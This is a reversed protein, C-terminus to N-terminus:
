ALLSVDTKRGNGEAIAHLERARYSLRDEDVQDQKPIQPWRQMVSFNKSDVDMGGLARPVRVIQGTWM